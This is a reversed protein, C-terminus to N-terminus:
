KCCMVLSPYFKYVLVGILFVVLTLYVPVLTKTFMIRVICPKKKVKGIKDLCWMKSNHPNLDYFYEDSHLRNLVVWEYKWRYLREMKLYFADLFWFCLTAVLGIACLIKIDIKEPLLALIVAILSITWGKVLFSNQAMRNICSQILDIEKLLVEKKDM